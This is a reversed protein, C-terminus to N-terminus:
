PRDTPSGLLLRVGDGIAVALAGIALLPRRISRQWRATRVIHVVMLSPGQPPDSRLLELHENLRREAPGREDSPGEPGNM